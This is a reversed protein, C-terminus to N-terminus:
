LKNKNVVDYLFEFMEDIMNEIHWKGIIKGEEFIARDHRNGVKM